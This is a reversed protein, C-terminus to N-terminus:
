LLCNVLDFRECLFLGCSSALKVARMSVASTILMSSGSSFGSPMGPM